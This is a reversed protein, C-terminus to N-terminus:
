VDEDGVQAALELGAALRPQEVRFAAGAVHDLISHRMAPELRRRDLVCPFRIAGSNPRSRFGPPPAQPGGCRPRRRRGRLQGTRQRKAAVEAPSVSIMMSTKPATMPWTAVLRMRSSKLLSTRPAVWVSALSIRM